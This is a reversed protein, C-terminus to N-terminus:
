VWSRSGRSKGSLVVLLGVAGLVLLWTPIGAVTGPAPAYPVAVPVLERRTTDIVTPVLATPPEMTFTTDPLRQPTGGDATGDYFEMGSEVGDPLIRM